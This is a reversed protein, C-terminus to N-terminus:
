PIFLSFHAIEEVMTPSFDSIDLYSFGFILWKKWWPQFFDKFILTHFPLYPDNQVGDNSFFQFIDLYSFALIPWKKWWPQFFDKFISTHFPLNSGNRGGHNSFFKIYCPIILSFDPIEEVM